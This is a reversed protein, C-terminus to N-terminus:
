SVLRLHPRRTKSAPPTGRPTLPTVAARALFRVSERHRDPLRQRRRERWLGGLAIGLQLLFFVGITATWRRDLGVYVLATAMLIAPQSSRNTKALRSTM